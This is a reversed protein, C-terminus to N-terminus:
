TTVEGAFLELRSCGLCRRALVTRREVGFRKVGFIGSVRPGAYYRVLSDATGEVFGDQRKTSGCIPCPVVAHDATTAPVSPPDAPRDGYLEYEPRPTM